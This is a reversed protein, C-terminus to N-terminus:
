SKRQKQFTTWNAGSSKLVLQSDANELTVYYATETESAVEFLESIWFTGTAMQDKLQAQLAVPLQTSCVNRTLAVFSGDQNYYAAAHQGNLVFSAKFFNETVSWEVQSATRFSSSFSRIAADNVNKENAFSTTSLLVLALTLSTLIRKM